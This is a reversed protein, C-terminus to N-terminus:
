CKGLIHKKVDVVGGYYGSLIFDQLAGPGISHIKHRKPQFYRTLFVRKALASYSVIGVVNVGYEEFVRRNFKHMVEHLCNLDSELYELTEEKLKWVKNAYQNKMEEYEALGLHVSYHEYVPIVGEYNLKDFTPFTYPFNGKEQSCGFSKALKGLAMPLIKLSDLLTISFAKKGVGTTIKIKFIENIAKGVVKVRYGKM